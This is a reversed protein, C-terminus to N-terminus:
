QTKNFNFSVREMKKKLKLLLSPRSKSYMKNLFIKLIIEYYLLKIGEINNKTCYLSYRWWMKGVILVFCTYSLFFSPKNTM